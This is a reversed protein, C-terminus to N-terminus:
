AQGRYLAPDPLCRHPDPALKRALAVSDEVFRELAEPRLDSTSVATYRGEVYLDLALGRTTAESVKEIKGDRWTVEVHRALWGGAAAETAGKKLALRAATRTSELLPSTSM